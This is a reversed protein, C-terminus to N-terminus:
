HRVQQPQQRLLPPHLQLIHRVIPGLDSRLRSRVTEPPLRRTRVLYGKKQFAALIRSLYGADLDLDRALEGATIQPRHALEYLIRAQALSFPSEALHERLAGIRRTYFRNFQRVAAVPDM